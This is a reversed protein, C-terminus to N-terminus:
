KFFEDNKKKIASRVTGFGLAALLGGIAAAQQTDIVGFVMLVVTLAGTVSVIYTKKGELKEILNM